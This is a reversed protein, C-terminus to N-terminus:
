FEFNTNKSLVTQAIRFGILSDCTKKSVGTMHYTKQDNSKIVITSDPEPSPYSAFWSYNCDKKVLPQYTTFCSSAVIWEKINEKTNIKKHFLANIWEYEHVLRFSPQKKHTCFKNTLWSCYAEAGQLTVFYMPINKKSNLYLSGDKIRIPSRELDIYLSLSDYCKEKKIDRTIDTLFQFYEEVSIPKKSIYAGGVVMEKGEINISAAKVKSLRPKIGIILNPNKSKQNHSNNRSVCNILLLSLLLYLFNTNM